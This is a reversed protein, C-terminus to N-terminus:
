DNWDIIIGNGDTVGWQQGVGLSDDIYNNWIWNNIIYNSYGDPNDPGGVNRLEFFGTGSTMYPNWHSNGYIRSNNITIHNSGVDSGIGSGGNDHAWVNTVTVHQSGKIDVGNVPDHSSTGSLNNADGYEELNEIWIYSSNCIYLNQWGLPWYLKPREGPYGMITIWNNATGQKNIVGFPSDGNLCGAAWPDNGTYTGNRILLTDGAQLKAFSPALYRWPQGITGPNSDSGNPAVYYTNGSGPGGAFGVMNQGGGFLTMLFYRLADLITGGIGQVNGTAAGVQLSVTIVMLAIILVIVIGKKRMSTWGGLRILKFLNHRAM